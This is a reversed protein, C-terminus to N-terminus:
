KNWLTSRLLIGNAWYMGTAGSPLLDYTAGENYAIREVAMVVGGDLMDGVRYDGLARRDATPHGPSATVVRGDNLTVRVVQFLLPVPTSVTDMVVAAIRQGSEGVTWVFMGKRLQEVLVLGEPTDILTGSALCIPCTNFSTERKTVTIQGSQTIVGDIREGQGEGVRLTFNYDAGSATMQVALTLKKHEQYILVKEATTYESKDLLDLHKLIASFEAQNSRIVPFQDLANKEEQGERAVPYYDPDCYFADGFNSILRYALEPQSYVVPSTTTGGRCGVLIGVVMVLIMTTIHKWAM